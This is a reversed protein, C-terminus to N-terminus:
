RLLPGVQSFSGGGLHKIVARQSAKRGHALLTQRASAVSERTILPTDVM